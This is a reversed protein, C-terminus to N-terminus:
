KRVWRVFSKAWPSQLTFIVALVLMLLALGPGLFLMALIEESYRLATLSIAVLAVIGLLGGLSFQRADDM